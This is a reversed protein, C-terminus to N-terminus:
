WDTDDAVSDEPSLKLMEGITQNQEDAAISVLSIIEYIEDLNDVLYSSPEKSFTASFSSIIDNYVNESIQVIEPKFYRKNTYLSYIYYELNRTIFLFVFNPDRPYRHRKDNLDIYHNFVSPM